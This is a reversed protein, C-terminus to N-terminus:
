IPQSEEAARLAATAAEKEENTLVHDKYASPRKGAKVALYKRMEDESPLYQFTASSGLAVCQMLSQFGLDNVNYGTEAGLKKHEEYNVSADVLGFDYFLHSVTM